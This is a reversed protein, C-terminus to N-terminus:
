YPGLIPSKGFFLSGFLFYIRSLLIVRGMTGVVTTITILIFMLLVTCIINYNLSYYICFQDSREVGLTIFTDMWASNCEPVRKCSQAVAKVIFDNM